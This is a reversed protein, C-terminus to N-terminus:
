KKRGWIEAKLSHETLERVSCATIIINMRASIYLLENLWRALLAEHSGAALEITRHFGLNMEVPALLCSFIGQAANEFLAPLAAGRAKIGVTENRSVIDYKKM